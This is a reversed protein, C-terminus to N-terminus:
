FVGYKAVVERVCGPFVVAVCREEGFVGDGACGVRSRVGGGSLAVGPYVM